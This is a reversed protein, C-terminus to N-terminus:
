RSTHAWNMSGLDQVNLGIGDVRFKLGLGMDKFGYEQFTLRLNWVM